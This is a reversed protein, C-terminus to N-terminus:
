QQGSRLYLVERKATHKPLGHLPPRGASRVGNLWTGHDTWNVMDASSFTYWQLPHLRSRRHLHIRRRERRATTVVYIRGQRRLARSRVHLQDYSPNRCAAGVLVHGGDLCPRQWSFKRQIFTTMKHEQWISIETEVGLSPESCVCYRLLSAWKKGTSDVVIVTRATNASRCDLDGNGGSADNDSGGRLDRGATCVLGHPPAEAARINITSTGKAV